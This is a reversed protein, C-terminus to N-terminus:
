LGSSYPRGLPMATSGSIGWRVPWQTPDWGGPYRIYDFLVGDPRRRSVAQLMQQFDQQGQFNYPDVFVEEPNSIAGSRAFALTDQGQGNRALVTQRDSRTGYSYGFNLSFTWASVKLGRQRGKAIAEAFLDRREYGSAQVVSPWATPNDAQPLLVQGSYFVEVYVHNYGLNVIRDLVAELIGPQLDCPYLRLWVAQEQPWTGNRCNRLLDSHQQVLALYESRANANGNFAEIRLAEKQSAMTQAVQCYPNLQAQAGRLPVVATLVLAAACVKALGTRWLGGPAILARFSTLKVPVAVDEIGEPHWIPCLGLM